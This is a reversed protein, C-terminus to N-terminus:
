EFLIKGGQIQITTLAKEDPGMLNQHNAIQQARHSDKWTLGYDKLFRGDISPKIQQNTNVRLYSVGRLLPKGFGEGGSGLSNTVM